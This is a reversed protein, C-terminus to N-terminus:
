RTSSRCGRTSRWSRSRTGPCWSSSPASVPTARRSSGARRGGRATGQAAVPGAPSRARDGRGEPAAAAVLLRPRRDGVDRRAAGRHAARLADATRLLRRGVGFAALAEARCAEVAADLDEAPTCRGCARAAVARRGGEVMVPFEGRRRTWCRFGWRRCALERARRKDGLLELVDASPGVFALGRASCARAFAANESLFGWGPHVAPVRSPRTWCSIRCRPVAVAWATRM